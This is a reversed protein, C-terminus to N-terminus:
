HEVSKVTQRKNDNKGNAYTIKLTSSFMKFKVALSSLKVDRILASGM